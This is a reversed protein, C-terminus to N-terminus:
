YQTNTNHSEQLPSRRRNPRGRFNSDIEFIEMVDPKMFGKKYAYPYAPSLSLICLFEKIQAELEAQLINPKLVNSTTAIM